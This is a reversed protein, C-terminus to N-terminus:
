KNINNSFCEPHTSFLYKSLSLLFLAVVPSLFFHDGCGLRSDFEPGRAKWAIATGTLGSPWTRSRGFLPTVRERELPFFAETIQDSNSRAWYSLQYLLRGSLSFDWTRNGAPNRHDNRGRELRREREEKKILINIRCEGLTNESFIKAM